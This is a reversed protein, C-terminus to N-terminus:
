LQGGRVAAARRQPRRVPRGQAAAAQDAGPPTDPLAAGGDSSSPESAAAESYDEDSEESSASSGKAKRKSGSRGGGTAALGPVKAHTSALESIFLTNHAWGAFPGFREVFAAQVEVHIKKTLSKNRLHPTYYKCALDWVHTDVPIAEHKDLSFLCVCAAVKPGIGPLTCLAESAEEYPVSRLSHLWAAGGEPRALLQALSGTIYKARYGFGDARLDEETAAALQELTPFAYLELRPPQKGSSGAAAASGDTAAGAADATAALGALGAEQAAPLLPTGYRRCLREVMGGIRSIHNNSSCIFQFLCEVPDQRLMRAGPLLPHVAAYRGCAACWGPALAALSHSLNFYDALAAADSGPDTGEGRAIVRYEVDNPLQRVVVARRGVVGTFEGEGTQRWRFSQGTPLTWELRLEAAPTGLSRWHGGDVAAPEPKVPQAEMAPPLAASSM